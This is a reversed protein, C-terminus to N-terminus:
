DGEDDAKQHDGKKSDTAREKAGKPSRSTRFIRRAASSPMIVDYAFARSSLPSSDVHASSSKRQYDAGQDDDYDQQNQYQQLQTGTGRRTFLVRLLLGLGLRLGLGLGLGLRLGM